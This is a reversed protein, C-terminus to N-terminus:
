GFILTYWVGGIERHAWATTNNTYKLLPALYDKSFVSDGAVNRLRYQVQNCAGLYGAAPLRVNDRQWAMSRPSGWSEFERCGTVFRTEWYRLTDFITNLKGERASNYYYLARDLM